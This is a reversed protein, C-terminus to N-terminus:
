RHRDLEADVDAETVPRRVMADWAHLVLGVGWTGIIWAPWFYGAGTMAWIAVFFGNVVVYVVLHNVLDRRAGLRRRAEDRETPPTGDPGRASQVDTADM